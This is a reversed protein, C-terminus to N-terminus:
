GATWNRRVIEFLRGHLPTKPASSLRYVITRDERRRSEVYGRRRLKTTHRSVADESMELTDILSEVTAEGHSELYRLLQLRRADTFATAAEFLTKHVTDVDPGYDRVEPLGRSDEPTGAGRLIQRLWKALSGSLTRENYPSEAAYYCQAGSKRSSILGAVTLAKLHASLTNLPMGLTGALSTPTVEGHRVLETLIRLRLRSAITRAIRVVLDFM